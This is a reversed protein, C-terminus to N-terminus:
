FAAHPNVDVDLDFIITRHVREQGCKACHLWTSTVLHKRWGIM